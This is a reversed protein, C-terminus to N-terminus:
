GILVPNNKTRRSLVQVVRRIESDRGIVPDIKGQRALEVLDRGYRELAQYKDEPNPDTVSQGGRVNQLANLVDQETVGLAALVEQARSKVKCLGILLHEVSVYQDKMRDAEAQAADFVQALEPSLTQDGGSVKPLADLGQDVAKKLQTPNVGLHQLISKVVVQDPDLLAALLHMPVLRQHGHERAIGQANQVAEQSKLTLKEFRMAM